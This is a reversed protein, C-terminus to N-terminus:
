RKQFEPSGLLLGAVQIADPERIEDNGAIADRTAQSPPTALLARSLREFADGNTGALAGPDAKVGAIRGAALALGFNLRALLGGANVWASATDAFGTPPQCRYLPAGMKEIWSPIANYPSVSAGLARTASIALEFPTKTKAGRASDSWMEPSTVLARM